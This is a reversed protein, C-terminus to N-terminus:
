LVNIWFNCRGGFIVGFACKDHVLVILHVKSGVYKTMQFNVKAVM